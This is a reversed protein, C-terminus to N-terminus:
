YSYLEEAVLKRTEAKVKARAIRNVKKDVNDNGTRAINNCCSCHIGGIGIKHNQAKTFNDM